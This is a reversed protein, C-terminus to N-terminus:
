STFSISRSFEGAIKELPYLDFLFKHVRGFSIGHKLSRPGSGRGKALTRSIYVDYHSHINEDKYM